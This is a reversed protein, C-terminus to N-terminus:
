VTEVELQFDMKAKKVREVVYRMLRIRADLEPVLLVRMFALDIAVKAGREDMTDLSHAMAAEAGVVDMMEVTEEMVTHAEEAAKADAVADRFHDLYYLECM